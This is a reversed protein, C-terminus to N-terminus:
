LESVRITKDDEMQKAIMEKYAKRGEELLQKVVVVNEKVSKTYNKKIEEQNHSAVLLADINRMRSVAVGLQVKFWEDEKTWEENLEPIAVEKVIEIFCMYDITEKVIQEWEENNIQSHLELMSGDPYQMLEGEIVFITPHTEKKREPKKM